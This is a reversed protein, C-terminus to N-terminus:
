KLEKKRLKKAAPRFILYILFGLLLMAPITFVTFIGSLLLGTQYVSLAVIYALATQYGITLWTWKKSGIERRIAGIAAICPACLLNFILFSYGSLPTFPLYSYIASQGSGNVGYLIGFSNVVNEKAALGMITAVAPKWDGWGLPIFIYQILKGISALISNDMEVMKLGWSFNSTFWIFIAAVFIVTGAKIVFSKIREWTHLTINKFNPIHYSPLEMIFPSEEGQFSRFKKLILGSLLVASIGILYASYAILASNNFLSGAILAIMPLKAGCPIFSTTMITIKRDNENEITRSAMIGPISCGTGIMMPIFSKGSLGFKRFIKDLIFAIRSLYGVDELMALLLFLVALQPLFGLVAGVGRVIGDIILSNLWDAAGIFRLFSNLVSPIWEGFLVNNVWNTGISGITSIALFYVIFMIAAFIPIAAWRNTIVKDIKDSITIKQIKKKIFCSKVVSEIYSYRENTIISESDDEFEKEAQKILLDIKSKQESNLNIDIKIDREFLKIASYRLIKETVNNKIIDEINLLFNEAKNSFKHIYKFLKQSQATEIAIKAIEFTGKGKLATLEIVECGTIEKLREINLIEGKKEVLDMMNLAIVVPIGLETLQTTLYLNREINTADVINIIVDPKENLIFNRSVIEEPSYPSLSYIGPLDIVTVDNYGKLRGEKKEVTVGPWNGVYQLSGTLNNFLTTKGSNPNGALAIRISM